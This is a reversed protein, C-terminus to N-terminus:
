GGAEEVIKEAMKLRRMAAMMRYCVQAEQGRKLGVQALVTRMPIEGLIYRKHLERLKSDPIKDPEM